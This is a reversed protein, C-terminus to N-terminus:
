AACSFIARDPSDGADGGGIEAVPGALGAGWGAGRGTVGTARVVTGAEDTDGAGTGGRAAGSRAAECAAVLGAGTVGGRSADAGLGAGFGTGFGAAFGTAPDPFHRIWSPANRSRPLASVSHPLTLPIDPPFLSLFVTQELM